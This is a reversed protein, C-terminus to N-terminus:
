ADYFRSTNEQEPVLKENYPKKTKQNYADNSLQEPILSIADDTKEGFSLLGVKCGVNSEVQNIVGEYKPPLNLHLNPTDIARVLHDVGTLAIYNPTNLHVARKLDKLSLYGIRRRNDDINWSGGGYEKINLQDAVNFSFENPLKGAHNRTPFVKAVLVVEFEYNLGLGVESLLAAATCDRSSTYPYDGHYNSLGSGQHGELLIKQGRTAASHLLEVTEFINERIEEFEHAVRLKRLCRAASAYGTGTLTSGIKSYRKDRRQEDILEQTIVGALPDILINEKPFDLEKAEEFMTPIHILSGAGFVVKFDKRHACAAPMMRLRFRKQGSWVTHSSNVGGCRCILDYKSRMSLYAAIKGKGEGGYQAGVILTIM